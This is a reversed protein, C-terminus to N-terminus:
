ALLKDKDEKGSGDALERVEIKLVCILDMRKIM